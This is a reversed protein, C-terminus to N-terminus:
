GGAAGAAGGGGGRSQEHRWVLKDEDYVRQVAGIRWPPWVVYTVRGEMLGLHVQECPCIRCACEATPLVPRAGEHPRAYGTGMPRSLAQDTAKGARVCIRDVGTGAARWM